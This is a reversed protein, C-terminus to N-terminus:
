WRSHEASAYSPGTLAEEMLGRMASTWTRFVKDNPYLTDFVLQSGRDARDQFEDLHLLIYMVRDELTEFMIDCWVLLCRTPSYIDPIIVLNSAEPKVVVCGCALAEVDKIAWPSWGWAGVVIKSNMLMDVYEIPYAFSRVPKGRWTRGYHDDYAVCIKNKVPLKEIAEIARMRHDTVSNHWRSNHYAVRGSFFVDIPREKLPRKKAKIYEFVEDSFPESPPRCLPKHKAKIHPLLDGRYRQTDPGCGHLMRRRYVSAYYDQAWEGRLQPEEERYRSGTTLARVQPHELMWRCRGDLYAFDSASEVILPTDRYGFPHTPIATLYARSDRHIWPEQDPIYPVPIVAVDTPEQSSRRVDLKYQSLYPNRDSWLYAM